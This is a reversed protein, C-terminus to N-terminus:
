QQVTRSSSPVTQESLGAVIQRKKRKTGRLLLPVCLCIEAAFKPLKQKHQFAWKLSAVSSKIVEIVYFVFYVRIIATYFPLFLFKINIGNYKLM